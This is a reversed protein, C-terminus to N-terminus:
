LKGDKLENLYRNAEKALLVRREELFDPYRKIKWLNPDSPIWQSELVKPYRSHVEELYDEPLRDSIMQNTGRTIFCFNGLSNRDAQSYNHKALQAKPFIHHRELSSNEGLMGSKIRLGNNLDLAEGMRSMIYLVKYFKSGANSVNFDDPTIELNGRRKYLINILSDVENQSDKIADISQDIATELSSSYHGWMGAHAFWYLLKCMEHRDVNGRKKDLYWVMVPIANQGFFLGGGNLGLHDEILNLSKEIYKSARKFAHQVEKNNSSELLSFRSKNNALVNVSRLLWDMSFKYKDWQKLKEKMRNRVEPWEINIKALARAGSSLQTGASNYRNFVDVISVTDDSNFKAINIEKKSIERVNHLRRSYKETRNVEGNSAAKIVDHLEDTSLNFIEYVKIWTHDNKMKALQYFEFEQKEVNFCLGQFKKKDGDFFGPVKGRLVSYLTTIRQQGDLLVDAPNRPVSLSGRYTINEINTRLILIEGIPYNSYLSDFLSRIQDRNWVYDRQFEPLVMQGSEVLDLLTSISMPNDLNNNSSM